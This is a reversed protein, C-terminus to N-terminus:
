ECSCNYADMLRDTVWDHEWGASLAGERPHHASLSGHHDAESAPAVFMPRLAKPGGTERQAFHEADM